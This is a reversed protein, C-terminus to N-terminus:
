QNAHGGELMQADSIDYPYGHDNEAFPRLAPHPTYDDFFAGQCDMFKPKLRFQAVEDAVSWVFEAIRFKAKGVGPAKLTWHCIVVRGRDEVWVQDRDKTALVLKMEQDIMWTTNADMKQTFDSTSLASM